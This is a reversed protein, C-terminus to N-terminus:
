NDRTQLSWQILLLLLEIAVRKWITMKDLFLWSKIVKNWDFNIRKRKTLKKIAIKREEYEVRQIFEFHNDRAFIQM